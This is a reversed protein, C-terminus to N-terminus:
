KIHANNSNIGLPCKHVEGSQSVVAPCKDRCHATVIRLPSINEVCGFVPQARSHLIEEVRGLNLYPHRVTKVRQEGTHKPSAMGYTAIYSCISHLEIM